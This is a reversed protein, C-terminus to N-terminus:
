ESVWVLGVRAIFCAISSASTPSSCDPESGLTQASHSRLAASSPLSAAINRGEPVM